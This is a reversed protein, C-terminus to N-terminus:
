RVLRHLSRSGATVSVSLDLAMPPQIGDSVKTTLASTRYVHFELLVMCDSAQERPQPLLKAVTRKVHNIVPLRVQACDPNRPRIVMRLQHVNAGVAKRVAPVESAQLERSLPSLLRGIMWVRGRALAISEAKLPQDPDNLLM